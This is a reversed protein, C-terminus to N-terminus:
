VVAVRYLPLSYLPESFKSSVHRRHMSMSMMRRRRTLTTTTMRRKIFDKRKRRKVRFVAEDAHSLCIDYYAYMSNLMTITAKKEWIM